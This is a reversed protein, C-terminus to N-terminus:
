VKVYAQEKGYGIAAALRFLSRRNKLGFGACREKLVLLVDRPV